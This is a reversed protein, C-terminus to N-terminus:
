KMIEALKGIGSHTCKTIMYLVTAFVVTCLAFILSAQRLNFIEYINNGNSLLCYHVIYIYFSLKEFFFLM